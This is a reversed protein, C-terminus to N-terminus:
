SLSSEGLALVSRDGSRELETGAVPRQGFQSRATAIEQRKHRMMINVRRFVADLM